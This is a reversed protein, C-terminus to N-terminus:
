TNECAEAPAVALLPLSLDRVKKLVGYLTAQDMAGTLLTEGNGDRVIALGGFWDAWEQGLQGRITIQYVMLGPDPRLIVKDAM